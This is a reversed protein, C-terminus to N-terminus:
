HCKNERSTGAFFLLTTLRDGPAGASAPLLHSLLSAVILPPLGCFVIAQGVLFRNRHSVLAHHAFASLNAAVIVDVM